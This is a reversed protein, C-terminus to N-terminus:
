LHSRKPSSRGRCYNPNKSKFKYSSSKLIPKLHRHFPNNDRKELPTEKIYKYAKRVSLKFKSILAKASILQKPIHLTKQIILESLQFLQLIFTARIKHCLNNREEKFVTLLKDTVHSSSQLHKKKKVKTHVDLIILLYTKTQYKNKYM